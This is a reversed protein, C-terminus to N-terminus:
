FPGSDENWSFGKKVRPWFDTFITRYQDVWLISWYLAACFPGSDENWSFSTRVDRLFTRKLPGNRGSHVMWGREGEWGGLRRSWTGPRYVFLHVGLRCYRSRKASRRDGLSSAWGSREVRTHKLRTMGDDLSRRFLVNREARRSRWVEDRMCILNFRFIFDFEFQNFLFM